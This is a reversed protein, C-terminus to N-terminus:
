KIHSTTTRNTSIPLITSWWRKKTKKRNFVM